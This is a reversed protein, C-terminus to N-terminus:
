VDTMEAGMFMPRRVYTLYRCVRCAHTRASVPQVRSPRAAYAAPETTGQGCSCGRGHTAPLFCVKLAFHVYTRITKKKKVGHRCMGKLCKLSVRRSIRDLFSVTLATSDSPLGDLLLELHVLPVILLLQLNNGEDGRTGVTRYLSMPGTLVNLQRGKEWGDLAVWIFGQPKQTCIRKNPAPSLPLLVMM